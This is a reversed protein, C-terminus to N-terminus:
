DKTEEKDLDHRYTKIETQFDEFTPDDKFCGFNTIWPNDSKNKSAEIEITVIKGQALRGELAIKANAIAEEETQGEAVCDPMGIISAIFANKSNTEVLVQYQMKDGSLSELDFM